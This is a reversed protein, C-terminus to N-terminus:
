RRILPLTIHSPRSGDHFITQIATTFDVYNYAGLRQGTNPNRDFQPFDSSTIEVRVRHGPEFLNSTAILDVNYEYIRGPELLEARELSNRYRARLIGEAVNVATEDPHVDILKVVWDTDRGTSAAYLTARVPGTVEMARELPDSTYVLVDPRMEIERRNAPGMPAIPYYCCSRGGRSPAPNRPDYTYVDPPEDDPREAVLRGDGDVTNARGDSRLYFPTYQTRALPWEDEDRWRNEGMVFIRVPATEELYSGQGKLWYDFWRVQEEDIRSRADSGFNVVGAQSSWPMHWWPGAILRQGRRAEDTAAQERLGAYNKLTGELFIDYWGAIHLAPVSVRGYRPEVSWRKWYDDYREHEVWDYFYPAIAELNPFKSLPLSPYFANINGFQAWMQHMLESDRRRQATDISLFTAWSANFALAFCGGVYAWGQYYDSATIAPCICRLSPPAQIAALMQTAGVYSFGYMGVQGNSGPLGAAWEVTDYGDTEEYQFTYFDGDSKYRGRTDQSVVMYGHRAYWSPHLYTGFNHEGQEKEYPFRMLVVPWPGDGKPRYVDSYLVTGDRM